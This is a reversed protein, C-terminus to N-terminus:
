AYGEYYYGDKLPEEPDVQSGGYNSGRSRGMDLALNIYM